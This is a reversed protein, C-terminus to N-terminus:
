KKKAFKEILDVYAHIVSKEIGVPYIFNESFKRRNFAFKDIGNLINEVIEAVDSADMAKELFGGEELHHFHPLQHTEGYDKTITICPRDLVSAELFATTNIGVMALSHYISNYYMRRKKETDPMEGPSPFVNVHSHNAEKLAPIMFPNVPHPRVLINVNSTLQNEALADAIKLILIDEELTKQLKNDLLYTSGTYLIYKKAPDIGVIRCFEERPLIYSDKDVILRHFRPAGSIYITERPIKHLRSLEYALPENWVIHYDPKAHFTGKSSINDWSFMSFVTPIGLSRAAQVYEGERSDGTVLPLAVLLHPTHMSIHYKIEPAVPIQQEILRLLKQVLINKLIKKGYTSSLIKWFRLDFFRGWKVADWRRNQENNLIHAYNLVERLNRVVKRLIKRKILEEVKLNPLDAIANQLADDPIHSEKDQGLILIIEHGRRYLERVADDISYYKLYNDLAFIIKM